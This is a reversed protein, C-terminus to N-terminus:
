CSDYASTLENEFLTDCLVNVFISGYDPYVFLSEGFAKSASLIFDSYKPTKSANAFISVLLNSM